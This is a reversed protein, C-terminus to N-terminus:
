KFKILRISKGLAIYPQVDGRTGSAALIIKKNKSVFTSASVDEISRWTNTVNTSSDEEKAAEALNAALIPNQIDTSLGVADRM